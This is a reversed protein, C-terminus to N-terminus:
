RYSGIPEAGLTGTLTKWYDAAEVESLKKRAHVLRDAIHLREAEDAHSARKLFKDLYEVHRKWRLRM